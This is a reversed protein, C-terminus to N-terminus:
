YEAESGEYGAGFSRFLRFIWEKMEDPTGATPKLLPALLEVVEERAGPGAPAMAEARINGAERCLRKLMLIKDENSKSRDSLLPRLRYTLLNSYRRQAESRSMQERAYDSGGVRM